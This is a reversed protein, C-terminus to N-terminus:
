RELSQHRQVGLPHSFSIGDPNRREVWAGAGVLVVVVVAAVLLKRRRRRPPPGADEALEARESTASPTTAGTM